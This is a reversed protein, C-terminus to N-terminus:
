LFFLSNNYQNHPALVIYASVKEGKEQCSNFFKCYIDESGESSRFTHELAELCNNVSVGPNTLKLTCLMDLAPGRLTEVLCSRKEADPLAWEQLMETTYELWSEFQEEGPIPIPGGASLRLKCYSGSLHSLEVKELVQVLAKGWESVSAAAGLSPPTSDLSLFGLMNYM